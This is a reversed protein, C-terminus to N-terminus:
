EYSHAIVTIAPEHAVLIEVNYAFRRSFSTALTDLLAPSAARLWRLLGIHAVSTRFFHIFLFLEGRKIATIGHGIFNRLYAADLWETPCLHTLAQDITMFQRELHASINTEHRRYFCTMVEPQYAFSKGVANLRSFLRLFMSFDDSVIDERWGDIEKLTSTKFVTAQLLIPQPYHLFMEEQRRDDPLAFFRQHSEGYAPKFICQTESNMFLANGLAFQLDENNELNRVLSKIGEPIPIDDSAVVYFYKGRAILLGENLTKVLGHNERAILRINSGSGKSGIFERIVSVSADRSGDDIVIIEKDEIDIKAAARIASVVFQEHNYSPIIVSLLM